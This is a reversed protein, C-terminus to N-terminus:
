SAKGRHWWFKKTHSNVNSARIVFCQLFFFMTLFPQFCQMRRILARLTAFLTMLDISTFIVVSVDQFPVFWCTGWPTGMMRFELGSPLKSEGAHASFNWRIATRIYELLRNKAFFRSMARTLPHNCKVSSPPSSHQIKILTKINLFIHRRRM